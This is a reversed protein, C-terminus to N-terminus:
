VGQLTQPGVLRSALVKACINIPKNVQSEILLIRTLNGCDGDRCGLCKMKGISIKRTRTTLSYTHPYAYVHLHMVLNIGRYASHLTLQHHSGSNFALTIIEMNMWSVKYGHTVIYNAVCLCLETLNDYHHYIERNFFPKCHCYRCEHIHVHVHVHVTLAKILYGNHGRAENSILICIYTQTM